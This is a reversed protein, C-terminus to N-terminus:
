GTITYLLGVTSEVTLGRDGEWLLSRGECAPPSRPGHIEIFIYISM